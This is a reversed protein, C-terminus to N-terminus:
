HGFLVTEPYPSHALRFRPFERILFESINKKITDFQEPSLDRITRNKDILVEAVPGLAYNRDTTRTPDYNVWNDPPRNVFFRTAIDGDRYDFVVVYGEPRYGSAEIQVGDDNVAFQLRPSSPFDGPREKIAWAM